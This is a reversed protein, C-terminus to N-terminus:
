SDAHCSCKGRRHYTITNQSVEHGRQKCWEIVAAVTIAREYRGQDTAEIAALLQEREEKPLAAAIVGVRCEVQRGKSLQVFESLDPTGM